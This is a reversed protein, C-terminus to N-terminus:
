NSPGVGSDVGPKHSMSSWFKFWEHIVYHTPDIQGKLYEVIKDLTLANVDKGPSQQSALNSLLKYNM